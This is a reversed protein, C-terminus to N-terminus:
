KKITKLVESSIDKITGYYVTKKEVVADYKKTKAYNSIATKIETVLSNIKKTELNALNTQSKVFQESLEKDKKAFAQKEAETIKSGKKALTEYEIKLKDAKANLDKELKTKEKELENQVTKLKPHSKLLFDLDVSVTEAFCILTLSLFVIIKKM